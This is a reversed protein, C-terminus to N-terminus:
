LNFNYLSHLNECQKILNNIKLKCLDYAASNCDELNFFLKGGKVEIYKSESTIKNLNLDIVFNNFYIDKFFIFDLNRSHLKIEIRKDGANGRLVKLYIVHYKEILVDEKNEVLKYLPCGIYLKDFGM